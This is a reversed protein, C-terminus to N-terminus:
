FNIERDMCRYNVAEALHHLQIDKSQELDAITRAVKLIRDHARGSFNFKKMSNSLLTKGTEDLQCCQELEKRAMQGNNRTKSSQYREEQIKRAQVVRERITASKEGKSSKNLQEYSLNPMQIQLDIRDMLPGSIRSRYRQIQSVSCSCEKQPDGLFGCPCPNSAALLLFDTPFLLNLNVRSITVNKDELPQRLLELITKPFEPLEDLFLVGRHSLSVEGPKPHMGGGILGANSISHHPARFPRELVLAQNEPLLGAISYIKTVELAEELNMSPLISPMRKALMSKGSGPPGSFLINHNGAAAIELARKATENGKVDEFDLSPDFSSQSEKFSRHPAPQISHKQCLFDVVEKLDEVPYIKLQDVLAVEEQNAKPIVLHQIGEKQAALAVALAGNVGRIKGELSLEGLFLFSKLTDAPITGMAELISLAIPLDFGTGVKKIDAPALNVIVRRIPFGGMANNLAATIRDRSEKIAGDPLGVINFFRLGFSVDAEVEIIHADLGLLTATKTTSTPM